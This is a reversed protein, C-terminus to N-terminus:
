KMILADRRSKCIVETEVVKYIKEMIVVNEERQNNTAIILRLNDCYVDFLCDIPSLGLSVFMRGTISKQNMRWDFVYGNKAILPILLEFLVDKAVCRRFNSERKWFCLLFFIQKRTLIDFNSHNAKSWFAFNKGDIDLQKACVFATYDVSESPLIKVHMMKSKSDGVRMSVCLKEPVVEIFSCSSQWILYQRGKKDSIIIASSFFNEKLTNGLNEIMARAFGDLSLEKDHWVFKEKEVEGSQSLVVDEDEKTGVLDVFPSSLDKKSQDVSDPLLVHQLSTTRDEKAEKDAAKEEQKVDSAHLACVTEVLCKEDVVGEKTALFTNTDDRQARPLSCSFWFTRRTLRGQLLFFGVTFVGVFVLLLIDSFAIM